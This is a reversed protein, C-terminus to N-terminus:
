KKCNHWYKQGTWKQTRHSIKDLKVERNKRTTATFVFVILVHIGFCKCNSCNDSFHQMPASIKPLSQEYMCLMSSHETLYPEKGLVQQTHARTHTHTHARAHTHTHTNHTHTHTHTHTRTVLNPMHAATAAATPGSYHMKASLM